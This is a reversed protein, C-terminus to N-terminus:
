LLSFHEILRVSDEAETAQRPISLDYDYRNTLIIIATELQPIRVLKHRFGATDGAHHLVRTGNHDMIYWGFGYDTRRGDALTGPNFALDLLEESVLGGGRLGSDWRLLDEVSSYICGDGLTASTSSQDECVFGGGRRTYGYARNSIPSEEGAYMTSGKMRLPEFVAKKLFEPFSIGSVREVISALLVYATNSYQFRSGPSFIPELQARTKLVVYDEHVQGPYDAPVDNDYDPVGSTHGLMRRVTIEKSYKPMGPILESLRDELGLKGDEVLKLVCVATFAKTLSALRFNTSPTIQKGNELNSLGYCKMLAPKGEKVVAISAGPVSGSYARLLEDAKEALGM